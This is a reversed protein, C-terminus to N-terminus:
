VIAKGEGWSYHNGDSWDGGWSGGLTKWFEGLPRHAETTEQYEGNIFLNLDIALGKRHFSNKKHPHLSPYTDGLTAEYGIQYVFVLLKGLARVFDRQQKSLAM